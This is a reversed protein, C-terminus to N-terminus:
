DTILLILYPLIWFVLVYASLELLPLKREPLDNPRVAEFQEWPQPTLLNQM